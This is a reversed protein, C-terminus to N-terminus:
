LLADVYSKTLDHIMNQKYNETTTDSVLLADLTSMKPQTQRLLVSCQQRKSLLLESLESTAVQALVLEEKSVGQQTTTAQKVDYEISEPQTSVKRSELLTLTDNIDLLVSELTALATANEEETNNGRALAFSANFFRHSLLIYRLLVCETLWESPMDLEVLDAIRIDAGHKEQATICREFFTGFWPLNAEWAWMQDAKKSYIETKTWEQVAVRELKAYQLICASELHTNFIIVAESMEGAFCLHVCEEFPLNYYRASLAKAAHILAPDLGIEVLLEEEPSTLLSQREQQSFASSVASWHFATDFLGKRLYRNRRSEETRLPRAICNRYLIAELCAQQNLQIHEHLFEGAFQIVYIAWHWKGLAELQTAFDM